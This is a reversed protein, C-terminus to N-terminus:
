RRRTRQLEGLAHRVLVEARADFSHEARIRESISRREAESPWSDPDEVLRRLDEASRYTQVLGGFLEALGDVDDSIVRAGVFTADFLRNSVFGNRGMDAWHDNLVIRASRYAAPVRDFPLHDARIASAPVLGEWAHGYIAVPWGGALVDAIVPRVQGRPTGVFLLDEIMDEDPPGPHFRTPSAAQLLPIARAASARDWTASAVFVQAWGASLEEDTVADPHSIIWLLNLPGAVPDLRHLGRLVLSVDAEHVVPHPDGLYEIRARQGLRELAACLDAAFATDGWRAASPDAPASIRIAWELRGSRVRSRRRRADIARRALGHAASSARKALHAPSAGRPLRVRGDYGPGMSASDREASM